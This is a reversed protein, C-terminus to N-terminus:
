KVRFSGNMSDAHPDCVFTYRGAKLRVTWKKTGVFDVGSDKNVGRGKLHFNHEDSKDRVVITYRGAKLTTVRKTGKKLTITFGPGVIGTLRPVATSSASVSAAAVLMAVLAAIALAIRSM